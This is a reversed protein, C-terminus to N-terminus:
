SGAVAEVFRLQILHNGATLGQLLLIESADKGAELVVADPAQVLQVARQDRPPLIRIAAPFGLAEGDTIRLSIELGDATERTKLQIRQQELSWDAVERASALWIRSDPRSLESVLQTLETLALSDPNLAALNLSIYAYGHLGAVRAIEAQLPDRWDGPRAPSGEPPLDLALSNALLLLKGDRAPQPLVDVVRGVDVLYAAKAEVLVQETANDSAGEPPRLGALPMSDGLAQHFHELSTDLRDRQQDIPQGAFREWQDGLLAIEQGRDALSRLQDVHDALDGALLNFSASIGHDSFLQGVTTLNEFRWTADVGLTIGGIHPWPWGLLYADPKGEVWDLSRQVLDTIAPDQEWLDQPLLLLLRRGVPDDFQALLGGGRRQRSWDSLFGDAENKLTFPLDVKGLWIRSGARLVPTLPSDGVSILFSDEYPESETMPGFLSAAFDSGLDTDTVGDFQGIQGTALLSDGAALRARIMERETQTLSIASELLLIQGPPMGRLQGPHNVIQYRAGRKRLLERWHEVRARLDRSDELMRALSTQSAYLLYRPAETSQASSTGLPLCAFCCLLALRLLFKHRCPGTQDPHPNSRIVPKM